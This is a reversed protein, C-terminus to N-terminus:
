DEDDDADEDSEESDDDEEVAAKKKNGKAPRKGKKSKPKPEEEDEDDSEEEDADEADDSDEDEEVAAKKKGAKKKAKPKPEEEDDEDEDAGELIDDLDDGMGEDENNDASRKSAKTKTRAPAEDDDSEALDDADDGGAFQGTGFARDLSQELNEFPEPELFEDVLSCEGNLDNEPTFLDGVLEKCEKLTSQMQSKDYMPLLSLKQFKNDTCTIQIETERFTRKSGDAKPPLSAFLDRIQGYREAAFSMLIPQMVKKATKGEKKSVHVVLCVWRRSVKIGRKFLPCAKKCADMDKNEIDEIDALSQAFFGKDEANKFQVSAGYFCLPMTMVRIVDTRGVKGKYTEPKTNLGGKVSEDAWDVQKKLTPAKKKTAEKTAM